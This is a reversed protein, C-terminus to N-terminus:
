SKFILFNCAIDWYVCKQQNVMSEVYFNWTSLEDLNWRNQFVFGSPFKSISEVHINRRPNSKWFRCFILSNEVIDNRRRISTVAENPTEKRDNEFMKQEPFRNEALRSYYQTLTIEVMNVYDRINSSNSSSGKPIKCCRLYNHIFIVKIKKLILSVFITIGINIFLFLIYIKLIVSVLTEM